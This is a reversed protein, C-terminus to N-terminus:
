VVDALQIYTIYGDHSFVCRSARRSSQLASGDEPADAEAIPVSVCCM